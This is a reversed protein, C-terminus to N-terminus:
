DFAFILIKVKENYYRNSKRMYMILCVLRSIGLLCLRSLQFLHLNESKSEDDKM